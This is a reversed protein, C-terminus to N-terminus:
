FLFGIEKFFFKNVHWILSEIDNNDNNENIIKKAKKPNFVIKINEDEIIDSIIKIEDIFRTILIEDSKNTFKNNIYVLKNKEFEKQLNNIKQLSEIWTLLSNVIKFENNKDIHKYNIINESDFKCYCKINNKYVYIKTLKQLTEQEIQSLQNFAVKSIECCGTKELSENAQELQEDNIENNLINKAIKYINLNM